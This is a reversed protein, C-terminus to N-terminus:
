NSQTPNCKANCEEETQFLNATKGCGGYVYPECKGKKSNFTWSPHFALCAFPNDIPPLSCVDKTTAVEEPKTATAEVVVVGDDKILAPLTVAVPSLLKLFERCTLQCDELLRFNNANGKCGTYTFPLCSSTEADFYFSPVHARCNGPAKPLLCPSVESMQAREKGRLLVKNNCKKLCAFENSFLNETGGCGGYVFPECIDKQSNFTWKPFAGACAIPSPKVPPLSCIDDKDKKLKKEFKESSEASEDSEDPQPFSSVFSVAFIFLLLFQGKM